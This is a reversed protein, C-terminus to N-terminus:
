SVLLFQFNQLLTSIQDDPHYLSTNNSNFQLKGAPGAAVLARLRQALSCGGSPRSKALRLAHM